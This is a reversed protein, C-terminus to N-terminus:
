KFYEIEFGTIYGQPLMGMHIKRGDGGVEEDTRRGRHAIVIGQTVEAHLQHDVHAELMTRAFVYM